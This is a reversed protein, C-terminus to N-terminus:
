STTNAPRRGAASCDVIDRAGASEMQQATGVSTRSSFDTSFSYSVMRSRNQVKQEVIGAQRRRGSWEIL